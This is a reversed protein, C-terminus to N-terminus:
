KNVRFRVTSRHETQHASYIVSASPHSSCDHANFPGQQRSVCVDRDALRDSLQGEGVYDHARSGAGEVRQSAILLKQVQNRLRMYSGTIRLCPILDQPARRVQGPLHHAFM